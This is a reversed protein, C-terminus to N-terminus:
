ELSKRREKGSTFYALPLLLISFGMLASFLMYSPIYNGFYDALIGPVNAFLLAGGAYIVQLRRVITPYNDRSGIDGAWVSIGITSVPYGTGLLFATFYALPISGTFAFCCLIHAILLIGLFMLGSYLGGIKDTIGGFILKAAFLMIGAISVIAAVVMSSFGETTYLVPIHSFGPNSVAGMFLCVCGILLWVKISPKYAPRLSSWSLNNKKMEKISSSEGYVKEHGLPTLGKDEPNNKMLVIIIATVLLILVAEAMFATKLSYTEITYTIIPPLVITALGSGASAVGLALAKHTDFWRNMLISVPIMSASGYCFGSLAAGVSYMLYSTSFAYILFVISACVTAVVAGTKISIKKYYFGILLMSFFSFLCRLTVFSSTQSNTFGNEKLIYPLYVSFGNSVTGISVFILFM